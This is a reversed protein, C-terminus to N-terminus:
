EFYKEWFITELNINGLEYDSWYFNILYDTLIFDTFLKRQLNTTHKPNRFGVWSGHFMIM